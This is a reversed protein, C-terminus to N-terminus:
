DELKLTGSGTRDVQEFVQGLMMIHKPRKLTFLCRAPSGDTDSFVRDDVVFGYPGEIAIGLLDGKDFLVHDEVVFGYPGDIAIGLLDEKHCFVRDKVVFCRPRGNGFHSQLDRMAATM